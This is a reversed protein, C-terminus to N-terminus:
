YLLACRRSVFRHSWDINELGRSIVKGDGQQRYRAQGGPPDPQCSVLVHEDGAQVVVVCSGGLLCLVLVLISLCVCVCAVFGVVLVGL